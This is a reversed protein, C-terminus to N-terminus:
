LLASWARVRLKMRRLTPGSSSAFNGRQFSDIARAARWMAFFSAPLSSISRL